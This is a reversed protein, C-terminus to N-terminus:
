GMFPLIKSSVNNFIFHTKQNEICSKDSVNKMRLLASCGIILFINLDSHLTGM